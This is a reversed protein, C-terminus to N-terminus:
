KSTDLLTYGWGWWGWGLIPWRRWGEASRERRELRHSSISFPPPPHSFSSFEGKACKVGKKAEAIPYEPTPTNFPGNLPPNYLKLSNIYRPLTTQTGLNKTPKQFSIHQFEGILSYHVLRSRQFHKIKAYTSYFM